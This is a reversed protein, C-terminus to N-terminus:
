ALEKRLQSKENLLVDELALTINTFEFHYGEMELKKASVRQSVTALYAMKGLFFRLVWVPINPLLKPKKYIHAIECILKKNTVPNSAVGNFIGTLENEVIFLYIGAIDNIHIWSQWQEGNGYAAGMYYKVPMAMQPLAGGSSSLVLGTRVMAVPFHHKELTKAEKEWAATVKGSFSDDVSLNNEEYYNTYSHPYIGIASASVFSKVQHDVEGISSNLLRLSKIRSNLIKKRRLLTWRKSMSAGALNIVADVGKFCDTDIKNRDPNWYFGKYNERNTLKARDTTLFHVEHGREHCMDVLAKGILGTAGTILIRM